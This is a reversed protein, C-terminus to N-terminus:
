SLLLASLTASNCSSNAKCVKFLWLSNKRRGVLAVYVPRPVGFLTRWRFLRSILSRAWLQINKLINLCSPGETIKNRGTSKVCKSLLPNDSDESFHKKPTKKFIGKCRFSRSGIHGKFWSQLISSQPPNIKIKQLHWCDGTWYSYWVTIGTGPTLLLGEVKLNITALLFYHVQGTNTM